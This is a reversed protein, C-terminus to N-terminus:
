AHGDRALLIRDSIERIAGSGGAATLVVRAAEIVEPHADAVAVPWGVADLCGLDNIDNGVYATDALPISREHCWARLHAVKDDIGCVAEIGLKEARSLVIPVREKSIILLPVGAARLREIGMGDSRNVLAFENGNTDILARNDTHVGDFDMVLARAPVAQSDAGVTAAVARALALDTPTDIEIATEAPLLEVGVRGFFRHKASRFGAVNMVYFAGTELFEPERDQRRLRVSADHNIGVAGDASLRWIFGHFPVASFMADFDGARVSSVARALSRAPIFPSTAQLFALTAPGGGAGEAALVDLAHLLAAESSATDGSLSDPRNIVEAGFQQAVEAIASDDTSVYVADIAPVQHATLIARAVLPVGGVRTLNKGPVGKSGGRAPIVAVVGGDSSRTHEPNPDSM